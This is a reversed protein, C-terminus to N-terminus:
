ALSTDHMAVRVDELTFPKAICPRGSAAVFSRVADNESDGTLFIVGDAMDPAREAIERYLDDGALGPM